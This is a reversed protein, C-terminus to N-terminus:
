SASAASACGRRRDGPHRRHRHSRHRHVARRAAPVAPSTVLARTIELRRREGGSLTYAPYRALPTLDLEALLEDRASAASPARLPRADRSDGPPEGRRDAQPVGVVGAAPLGVGLRCRQYMPLAPSRAGRSSSAAATRDAPPRRDHLVVHDQRRRQARASRGGRGAPHRPLRLRRGQPEQVVEAAGARGSRGDDTRAAGAPAARRRGARRAPKSRIARTSSAGERAGAQRGRVVAATRRRPLDHHHRRDGRQRGAVGARQRDLVVRQELTTTSRASPRAPAATRPSSGSTAPRCRASSATARRTSTSRWGTPTSSPTTRAPWWTAAHLRRPRGQRLAGDPRRGRHGALKRDDEATRGPRRGGQARAGAATGRAPAGLAAARHRHRSRRRVGDAGARLRRAGLSPRIM